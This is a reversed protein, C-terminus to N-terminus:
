VIPAQSLNINKKKKKQNRSSNIKRIRMKNGGRKGGTKEEKGKGERNREKRKGVKRGKGGEEQKGGERGKRGEGESGINGSASMEVLVSRFSSIYRGIRGGAV